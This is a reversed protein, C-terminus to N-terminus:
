AVTFEEEPSQARTAQQASQPRPSAIAGDPVEARYAVVIPKPLAFHPAPVSQVAPARVRVMLMLAGARAATSTFFLTLYAAQNEGIVMLVGGGIMSGVVIAAANALNFVTMVNVREARPIAEFFLLMMALEYVAWAAGSVVQALILYYFNSSVLWLGAIPVIATGGLWLLRQAGLRDALRGVAPLCLIKTLYATAILTAYQLYSFELQGLMYATFYPGSIQVAAQAALLYLLTRANGHSTFSGLLDRWRLSLREGGPPTPEGHRNLFGVSIFRAAAAVWFLLGFAQLRADFGTWIQLTIGGALFGALIGAQGVLSRLAFYRARIQEPVLTGVWANWAPSTAMGTAWYVSVLAFVLTVPLTKGLATGVLPLFAIAQITICLVIWRRYSGFRRLLAPAALQLVAGVMLPVTQVLGSALHSATLALVFAPFYNEGIGVMVNGAAADGAM